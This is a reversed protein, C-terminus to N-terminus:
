DSKESDSIVLIGNKDVYRGDPTYDDILLRGNDLFYYKNNDIVKWGTCMKGVNYTDDDFYYYNENKDIGWGVLM